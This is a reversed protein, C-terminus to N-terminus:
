EAAKLYRARKKAKLKEIDLLVLGDVCNAFDCDVGFDIFQVGGAETLESYQKYLTPVTTGMNALLHKLQTFDAKYDDGTFQHKLQEVVSQQLTFPSRSPALAQDSGFYLKYFYVMLEKAAQPMNNSISVPGFLYRYKPYKSIFAGIGYWLYDLSRKGWYKPQVFSRGLELGQELYPNMENSLAFLTHTYLGKIGKNAIVDKTDALRYAGVIELDEEDWLILHLYHKDYVDIDRRLNSGEGVARFAEERLVGIERMIPDDEGFRHLYIQKGDQTQGLHECAKIAKKLLKPDERNAIASQTEFIDSQNKKLRYLHRKFLKTKTKIDLKAQQYSEFPIKRGVRMALNKQQQKFMEDVLLLTSAPKYMMSVGYFTASNKADIYVPVIPSKTQQAFKLFGSHWKTDRVGVPRLRSVEGAPFVIIAGEHQLHANIAKLNDKPTKGGMNNVPLLIPQLPKLAMLMSNVVVKVDRRIDSVLKILALGDISGIPHNAIIVVRGQSPINEREVDRVSYSIDLHELCQEVFDFGTLHPYKEEFAQFKKEHLLSKLIAKIPKELWPKGQLKPLNQEVVDDVKIMLTQEIVASFERYHSIIVSM